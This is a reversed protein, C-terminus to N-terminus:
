VVILLTAEVSNWKSAVLNVNLQGFANQKQRQMGGTWREVPRLHITWKRNHACRGKICGSPLASPNHALSEWRGERRINLV